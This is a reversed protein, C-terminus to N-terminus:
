IKGRLFNQLAEFCKKGKYLDSAPGLQPNLGDVIDPFTGTSSFRLGDLALPQDQPEGGQFKENLNVGQLPSNEKDEVEMGVM